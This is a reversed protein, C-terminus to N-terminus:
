INGEFTWANGVIRYQKNTRTGANIQHVRCITDNVHESIPFLSTIVSLIQPDTLGTTDLSFGIPSLKLANTVVELNTADTPDSAPALNTIKTSNVNVSGTGKPALTIDGNVIGIDSFSITGNNINIYDVQLQSLTGVSVLGPASSVTVGLTTQTLVDFGGVKYSKGSALDFNESSTWSSTSNIYTLTKDFDAGAEVLIGSGDATINNPNTVKALEILKDKIELNTTNISTLNGKVTLNGQIVADGNVDLTATPADTYIGVRQNLADVSVSTLLGGSNLSKIKFTQGIVNSNIQMASNSIIIENQTASGLRLPISNQITLTGSTTSDDTTSLFSEATKLTVNDASLLSKAVSTTVNFQTGTSSGVNFGKLIPNSVNGTSPYGAIVNAPTFADRSFIGLLTAACYLLVITHSLQSTDEVDIVQFGSIGEQSTYIPGALLTESGDNFYLQKRFSDIWIDGAALTPVTPSVITGGSVKFGGGDYVKLRGESTDYWLQGIIPNPPSNINAFNELVHVFNENFFEGYSVANKGILTIDTATQDITGDVVETLVTGDTKNIIYSM